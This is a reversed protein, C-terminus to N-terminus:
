DAGDELCKPPEHAKLGDLSVDVWAGGQQRQLRKLGV